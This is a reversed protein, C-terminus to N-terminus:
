RRRPPGAADTVLIVRSANQLLTEIATGMHTARGAVRLVGLCGAADPECVLRVETDVAAIQAAGTGRALQQLWAVAGSARTLAQMSPSVDVAVVTQGNILPLAGVRPVPPGVAKEIAAKLVARGARNQPTLHAVAACRDRVSANVRQVAPGTPGYNVLIVRAQPLANAYDELDDAFDRDKARKYHKCEIALRCEETDGVGAWIGYDPRVGAM